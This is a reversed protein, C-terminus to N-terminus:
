MYSLNFNIRVYYENIVFSYYVSKLCSKILKYSILKKFSILMTFLVNKIDVLM